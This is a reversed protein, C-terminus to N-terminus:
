PKQMKFEIKYKYNLRHIICKIKSNKTQSFYSAFHTSYWCLTEKLFPYHSVINQGVELFQGKKQDCSCLRTDSPQHLGPPNSNDVLKARTPQITVLQTPFHFDDCWIKDQDNFLYHYFTSFDTGSCSHIMQIHQNINLNESIYM